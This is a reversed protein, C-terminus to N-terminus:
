IGMRTSAWIVKTVKEAAVYGSNLFTKKWQYEANGAAPDSHQWHAGSDRQGIVQTFAFMWHM